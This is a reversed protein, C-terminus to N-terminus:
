LHLTFIKEGAFHITITRACIAGSGRGGRQIEAPVQDALVAVQGPLACSFRRAAHEGLTESPAVMALCCIAFRTVALKGLDTGRSGALGAGRLDARALASKEGTRLGM